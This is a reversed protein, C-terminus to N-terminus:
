FMLRFNASVSQDTYDHRADLNYNATIQTGNELSYKAGLGANYVWQDPEIGKTTFQAGGGSFSSTLSTSDTMLDYGVGANALLNLSESVRLAVKIGTSLVFSDSSENNVNLNLAAAGSESYNEVNVYGYNARVYPTLLVTNIAEYSRQLEASAQIHWSDYDAQATDGNFILRNSDYDSMGTGLQINLATRSDILMTAYVKALYSKMDIHHHGASLNSKVDSNIYAFALGVNWSNSVDGDVGIALGYSDIEYGTVGQTDDQETWGGFPKLWFHRNTIFGDGAALGRRSDQHISVVNTFAQMSTQTLQSVQGSISPLVSEAAESLQKKSGSFSSLLTRNGDIVKAAQKSVENKYEVTAEYVASKLTLYLTSEKQINYYALTQGDELLTDSFSLNQQIALFNSSDQVKAKVNEITDNSEVELSINRGDTLRVFIQMAYANENIFLTLIFFVLFFRM